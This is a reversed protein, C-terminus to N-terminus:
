YGIVISASNDVGNGPKPIFDLQFENVAGERKYWDEIKLDTTKGDKKLKATVKYRGIPIDWLESRQTWKKDGFKLVITKGTSGDILPGTPKLTIEMDKEDEYFGYDTTLMVTGGYYAEAEWPMDGELKWSFNRVAGEENFADTGDPFLEMTYVKGNYQKDIYAFARWSGPLSKIRYTGSKDTTGHIYSAYLMTNDLLIRVDSLPEGKSDTVKGTAYGKEPGATGEGTDAKDCCAFLVLSIATWIAKGITMKM